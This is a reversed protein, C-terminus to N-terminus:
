LLQGQIPAVAPPISKSLAAELDRVRAEHLAAQGTAAEKEALASARGADAAQLAAALRTVENQDAPQTALCAELDKIRALLTKNQALTENLIHQTTDRAPVVGVQSLKADKAQVRATALERKLEAIERRGMELQVGMEGTRDAGTAASSRLAASEQELAALKESTAKESNRASNANHEAATLLTTLRQMDSERQNSRARAAEGDKLQKTLANISVKYEAAEERAKATAKEHDAITARMAELQERAAAAEARAAEAQRKVGASPENSKDRQPKAAAVGKAPAPKGPSNKAPQAASESRGGAPRLAWGLWFFLFAAAGIFPLIKLIFWLSGNNSLDAFILSTFM